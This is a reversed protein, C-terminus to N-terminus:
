KSGRIAELLKQTEAVDAGEKQGYEIAKEAVTAAEANKGAKFLVAAYTDWMAYNTGKDTAEMIKAAMLCADHDMTEEYAKWCFQNAMNPTLRGAEHETWLYQMAGKWDGDKIRKEVGFHIIAETAQPHSKPIMALAKDLAPADSKELAKSGRTIAINFSKDLAENGYKRELEPLHDFIWQEWHATLPGKVMATFAVESTPDAQKGLWEAVDTATPTVRDKAKGFSKRLFPPWDLDVKASIGPFHQQTTPDLARKLEPIFTEPPLFGTIRYVLEGKPTFILFQPFSMVRYKMALDIGWSTEMEIKTSVFRADMFSEVQEDAFTKSDMVKCWGCWDTMADVFLFKNTESAKAQAETWSAFQTFTVGAISPMGMCLIILTAILLHKM